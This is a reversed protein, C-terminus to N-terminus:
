ESTLAEKNTRFYSILGKIDKAKTEELEKGAEPLANNVLKVAESLQQGEARLNTLIRWEGTLRQKDEETLEQQIKKFEAFKETAMKMAKKDDLEGSDYKEQIEDLMDSYMSEVGMVEEINRRAKLFDLEENEKRELGVPTDKKGAIEDLRKRHVWQMEISLINGVKEMMNYIEKEKMHAPIGQLLITRNGLTEARADEKTKPKVLKDQIWWGKSFRKKAAKAQRAQAFEAFAYGPKGGEARYLKLYLLLENRKTLEEKLMDETVSEHLNVLILQRPTLSSYIDVQNRVEKEVLNFFYSEKEERASPKVHKEVEYDAEDLTYDKISAV